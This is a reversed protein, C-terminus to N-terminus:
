PKMELLERMALDKQAQNGHQLMLELRRFNLERNAKDRERADENSAMTLLAESIGDSNPEEYSVFLAYAYRTVEPIKRSKISTHYVYRSVEEDSMWEMDGDSNNKGSRKYDAFIVSLQTKIETWKTKIWDAPRIIGQRHM